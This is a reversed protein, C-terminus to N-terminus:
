HVNEKAYEYAFVADFSETKEFVIKFPSVFIPVSSSIFISVFNQISERLHSSDYGFFFIWNAKSKRTPTSKTDTSVAVYVM